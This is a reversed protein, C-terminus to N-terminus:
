DITKFQFKEFDSATEILLGTIYLLNIFKREGRQGGRGGRRGSDGSSEKDHFSQFGGGRNGREGSFGGRDLFEYYIDM